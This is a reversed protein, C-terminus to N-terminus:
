TTVGVAVAVQMGILERFMKVLELQLVGLHILLYVLVVMVALQPIAVKVQAVLVAVVAVVEIVQHPLAVALMVKVQLELVVLATMLVAAAQAETAVKLLAQNNAVVVV